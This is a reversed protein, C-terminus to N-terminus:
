RRDSIGESVSIMDVLLKKFDAYTIGARSIDELLYSDFTSASGFGAVARTVVPPCTSVSLRCSLMAMLSQSRSVSSNVSEEASRRDGGIKSSKRRGLRPSSDAEAIVAPAIPLPTPEINSVFRNDQLRAQYFILETGADLLYFPSSDIVMSQRSLRIPRPSVIHDRTIPWLQPYLMNCLRIADLRQCLNYFVASEDPSARSSSPSSRSHFTILDVAAFLLRIVEEVQYIKLVATIRLSVDTRLDNEEDRQATLAQSLFSAAWNLIYRVGPNETNLIAITAENGSGDAPESSARTAECTLDYSKSGSAATRTILALTTPVNFRGPFSSSSFKKDSQLIVTIIRLVKIVILQKRPNYIVDRGFSILQGNHEMSEKDLELIGLVSNTYSQGDKDMEGHPASFKLDSELEDYTFNDPFENENTDPTQEAVTKSPAADEMTLDSEILTEFTIAVQLCVNEVSSDDLQLEFGITSEPSCSALRFIGDYKCDPVMPGSHGGPIVSVGTSTRLKLIAATAYRSCVVRCLSESLRIREDKPYMGLVYRHIAGGTLSALPELDCLALDVKGFNSIAWINVTVANHAFRSSLEKIWRNNM